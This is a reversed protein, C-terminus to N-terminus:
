QLGNLKEKVYMDAEEVLREVQSVTLEEIDLIEKLVEMSINIASMALKPELTSMNFYASILLGLVIRLEKDM